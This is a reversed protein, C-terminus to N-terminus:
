MQLIVCNQSATLRMDTREESGLPRGDALEAMVPVPVIMRGPLAPLIEIRGLQHLYRPPSANCIFM